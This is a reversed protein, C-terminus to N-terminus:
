GFPIFLGILLCVAGGVILGIIFTKWDYTQKIPTTTAKALQMITEDVMIKKILRSTMYNKGNLQEFFIQKSNVDICYYRVNGKRYTHNEIDILFEHEKDYLIKTTNPKILKSQIFNYSSGEKVCFIVIYKGKDKSLAKIRNM